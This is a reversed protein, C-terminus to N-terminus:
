PETSLPEHPAPRNCWVCFRHEPRGCHDDIVECRHPVRRAIRDVRCSLWFALRSPRRYGRDALALAVAGIRGDNVDWLWRIVRQGPTYTRM